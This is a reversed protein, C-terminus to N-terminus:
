SAAAHIILALALLIAGSVLGAAINGKKVEEAHNEGLVCHDFIKYGIILLVVGVLTYVSM